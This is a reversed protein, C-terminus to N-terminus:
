QAAPRRATLQWAVPLENGPTKFLNFQIDQLGASMLNKEIIEIDEESSAAARMRSLRDINKTLEGRMGELWGTIDSEDYANRDQFLQMFGQLLHAHVGSPSAEAAKTMARAVPMFAAESSAMDAASKSFAAQTLGLSLDIFGSDRALIAGELHSKNNSDIYGDEIHCLAALQGGAALIRAAETFADIGAYEVGFQSIVCDFSGDEFPTEAASCVTTTVGPVRSSLAQLAEEAIDAAHLNFSHNEPLHAFVSGAGSALDIVRADKPWYKFLNKWYDALAPHREGKSNVFVEGSDGDQQWYDAWGQDNSSM